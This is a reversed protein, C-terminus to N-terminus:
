KLVRSLKGTRVEWLVVSANGSGSALLQGDPSFALSAVTLDHGKFTRKSKGDAVEWLVITRDDGGSALLEGNPSFALANIPGDHKQFKGQPLGTQLNWLSITNDSAATALREGNPAFVLATIETISRFQKEIRGSAVKWISITGDEDAGALMNGDKSFTLRSVSGAQGSLKKAVEGTPSLLAVETGTGLALMQGDASLALASVTPPDPLPVIRKTDSNANWFLLKGQSVEAFSKGDLSAAVLSPDGQEVSLHQKVEGTRQDWLKIEGHDSEGAVTTGDASFAVALVRTVSLVFRSTPREIADGVSDADWTQKVTGSQTDLLKVTAPGARFALLTGNRSLVLSDVGEQYDAGTPLDNVNGTQLDFLKMGAVGGKSKPLVGGVILIRGNSSFALSNVAGVDKLTLTVKGTNVDFLKVESIGIIKIVNEAYEREYKTSAVALSRGNPSFAVANVTGRLDKLKRVEKGTQSNWLKVQNGNAVALLNGDPSFSAAGAQDMDLKFRLEGTEANVLKMEVKFFSRPLYFGRRIDLDMSRSGSPGIIPMSLFHTPQWFSEALALQKGDPSQIARISYSHEDPMTLKQKLEGTRTDWWKLEGFSLGERSRAQQQLKPSRFETSSSILTHGDPSFSISRVPGDFGKIIHRLKLTEADWLEIRGFRQVPERAGRAIALTGGDPSFSIAFVIDDFSPPNGTPMRRQGEVPLSLELLAVGFAALLLVYPTSALTSSGSM